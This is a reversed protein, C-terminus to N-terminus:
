HSLRNWTDLERTRRSPVSWPCTGIACFTSSVKRSQFKYKVGVKDGNKLAEPQGIATRLLALPSSGSVPMVAVPPSPWPPPMFPDLAAEVRVEM